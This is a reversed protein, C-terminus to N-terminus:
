IASLYVTKLLTQTKPISLQPQPFPRGLGEESEHNKKGERPSIISIGEKKERIRCLSSNMQGNLATTSLLSPNQRGTSMSM